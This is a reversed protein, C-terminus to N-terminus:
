AESFINILSLKPPNIKRLTFSGSWFPSQFLSPSSLALLSSALLFVLAQMQFSTETTAILQFWACALLMELRRVTGSSAYSIMGATMCACQLLWHLPVSSASDGWSRLSM